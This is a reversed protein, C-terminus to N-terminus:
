AGPRDLVEGGVHGLVHLDKPRLVLKVNLKGFVNHTLVLKLVGKESVVAHTRSDGSQNSQKQM